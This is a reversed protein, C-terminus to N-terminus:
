LWPAQWGWRPVSERRLEYAATPYPNEFRYIQLTTIHPFDRLESPVQTVGAVRTVPGFVGGAYITWTNDNLGNTDETGYLVGYEVPETIGNQLTPQRQCPFLFAFQWSLGVAADAPIYDQLSVTRQV